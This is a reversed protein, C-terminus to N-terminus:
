LSRSVCIASAPTSEAFVNGHDSVGYVTTRMVLAREVSCVAGTASGFVTSGITRATATCGTSNWLGPVSAVEVCVHITMAGPNPVLCQFSGRGTATGDGNMQPPTASTSCTHADAPGAYTVLALAALALLPRPTMGGNHRPHGAGDSSEGM